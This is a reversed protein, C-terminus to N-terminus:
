VSMQLHSLHDFVCVCVWNLITCLGIVYVSSCKITSKDVILHWNQHKSCFQFRFNHRFSIYDFHIQNIPVLKYQETDSPQISKTWGDFNFGHWHAITLDIVIRNPYAFSHCITQNKNLNSSSQSKKKWDIKWKWSNMKRGWIPVNKSLDIQTLLELYYYSFPTQLFVWFVVYFGPIKFSFLTYLLVSYWTALEIGEFQFDRDSLIHEQIMHHKRDNLRNLHRFYQKYFFHFFVNWFRILKWLSLFFFVSFRRAFNTFVNILFFFWLFILNFCM